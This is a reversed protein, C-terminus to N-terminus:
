LHFDLPTLAVICVSDNRSTLRHKSWMGPVSIGVGRMCEREGGVERVCVCVCVVGGWVCM